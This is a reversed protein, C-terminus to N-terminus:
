ETANREPGWYGLCVYRKQAGQSYGASWRTEGETGLPYPASRTKGWLGNHFGDTFAAQLTECATLFDKQENTM